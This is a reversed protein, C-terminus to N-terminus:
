EQSFGLCGGQCKLLEHNKCNACRGQTNKQARPISKNVLLYRRLEELTDFSRMDVTSYTGFCATAKLSSTVDVVPECFQRERYARTAKYILDLEEKNFYCGPIHGCDMGLVVRHEIANKCHELFKPKMLNFYAEKDERMNWFCGGPSVVSTRLDHIDFRECIDWIYSYNDLTPYVNCGISVRTGFWGLEYCKELCKVTAQWTQAPQKDPHNVNILLHVRESLASMYKELNTGNTFLTVDADFERCFKNTEEVIKDFHPHLTPEGGIIGLHHENSRRLFDLCYCFDEISIAKSEEHIMDDAFCYECKLNCFNTIAVNM